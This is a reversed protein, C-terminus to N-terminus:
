KLIFPLYTYMMTRYVYAAGAYSASNDAQDGGVGAASSAEGYAGVVVNDGSIAASIGFLDGAGTNSAKLYDQQSWTDSSRVFVYAAGADTASNDAQNGDVGTASSAEKIAGVVLTDGSIAVSNGFMDNAGTNSAKLYAQQSWATGSRVFVYAAGAYSASNDAQNGDVGATSSDEGYAGAVVTDGSIAVTTGFSDFAETNSAKLYAQQSWTAGSRVFVYAAGAYSASNDAQNSGVSAEGYAGVVVSDGSIAVSNGFGDNAEANSAKLYAQQSWTDGSRTFVYAAGAFSASNDNQNGDVSAASSAENRAGVVVTDGSIDVSTGFGDEAETNSAKLYAQQSWTTGSRVFVYAAGAFSASNDNQNGNVGAANSDEYPAGVVVTDGSIAVSYGFGDEAGTNSAKLYAQQSWTTGSRVFVYVAGSQTASNNAQDGDVGTASSAEYPAGVVVTDGSIAVSYGFLDNAGTNSAKLYPGSAMQAQISRWEAASLGTPLQGPAIHQRQEQPLTQERPTAALVKPTPVASICVLALLTLIFIIRHHQTQKSKNHKM